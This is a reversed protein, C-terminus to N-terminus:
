RTLVILRSEIIIGSFGFHKKIWQFTEKQYLFVHTPDTKYYWSDFNSGNFIDTMCILKGKLNLMKYLLEFEVRPNYFHEIVECSIIFDYKGGLVKKNDFFLPDYIEVKFNNRKLIESIVPTHGAGFDLGKQNSNFNNKVFSIIPDAFKIYGHDNIHNQHLYYREREEDKKLLEDPDRYIGKCVNCQYFTHKDDQYLLIGNNSCLPCSHTM